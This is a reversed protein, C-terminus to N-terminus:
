PHGIARRLIEDQQGPPAADMSRTAVTAPQPEHDRLASLIRQATIRRSNRLATLALARIRAPDPDGAMITPYVALEDLREAVAPSVGEDADRRVLSELGMAVGLITEQHADADGVRSMEVLTEAFRRRTPRDVSLRGMSRALTGRVAPDDEGDVRDLLLAAVTGADQSTHFAQATANVASQRVQPSPDHLLPAIHELLEPRELRGLARVSAHRIFALDHNTGEVLIELEPGGAPRADEAAVIRLYETDARESRGPDPVCASVGAAVCVLAAISRPSIQIM